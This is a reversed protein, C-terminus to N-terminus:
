WFGARYNTGHSLIDDNGSASQIKLHFRNITINISRTRRPLLHRLFLHLAERKEDMSDGRVHVTLVDIGKENAKSKVPEDRHHGRHATKTYKVLAPM